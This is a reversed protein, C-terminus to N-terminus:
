SRGNGAVVVEATGSYHTMMRAAVRVSVPHKGSALCAGAALLALEGRPFYVERSPEEVPCHAAEVVPVSEASAGWSGAAKDLPVVLDPTPFAM